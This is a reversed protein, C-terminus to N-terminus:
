HITSKLIVKHHCRKFQASSTYLNWLVHVLVRRFIQIYYHRQGAFTYKEKDEIIMDIATWNITIHVAINKEFYYLSIKLCAHIWELIYLIASIVINTTVWYLFMCYYKTQYVGPISLTTVTVAIKCFM